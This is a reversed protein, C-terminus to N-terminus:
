DLELIRQIERVAAETAHGANYFGETAIKRRVERHEDPDSLAREIARHIEPVGRAVTGSRQGWSELDVTKEYKAFLWPVDILAM